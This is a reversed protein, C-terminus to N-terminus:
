EQGKTFVFRGLMPGFTFKLGELKQPNDIYDFVLPQQLADRVQTPDIPKLGPKQLLQGGTKSDDFDVEKTALNIKNKKHTWTGLVDVIQVDSEMHLKFKMGTAYLQLYGKYTWEKRMQVNTKSPAGEFQGQWMGAMPGIAPDSCGAALLIFLVMLFFQIIRGLGGQPPTPPSSRHSIQTTPSLREAKNPTNVRSVDNNAV